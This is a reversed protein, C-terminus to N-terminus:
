RRELTDASKNRHHILTKILIPLNIYFTRSIQRLCLIFGHFDITQSNPISLRQYFISNLEFHFEIKNLQLKEYICKVFKSCTMQPYKSQDSNKNFYEKLRSLNNNYEILPDVTNNNKNRNKLFFTRQFLQFSKYNFCFTIKLLSVKQYLYEKTIQNQKAIIDIQKMFQIFNMPYIEILGDFINKNDKSLLFLQYFKGLTSNSSKFLHDFTDDSQYRINNICNLLYTIEESTNM